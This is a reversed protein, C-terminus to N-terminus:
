IRVFKRILDDNKIKATFTFHQGPDIKQSKDPKQFQYYQNITQTLAGFIQTLKYKGKLEVDAIQSNFIIHTSDKTSSANLRLEQVPFVEKTDSFAFNKLNLYGNLNNPDLSTFDGDIKGALIMPKEYFGLKNLDLKIVEGNVKVTPNKEDYMGSATLLLDANPDKSHLIFNYAGKNIKGTLNM